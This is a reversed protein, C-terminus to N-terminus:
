LMPGDASPALFHPCNDFAWSCSMTLVMKKRRAWCRRMRNSRKYFDYDDLAKDNNSPTMTSPGLTFAADGNLFYPWPLEGATIAQGLETALFATSDHTTSTHSVDCIAMALLAFTEKRTVYYRMPNDVDAASPGKMKFHVGDIAGM